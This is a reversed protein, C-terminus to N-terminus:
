RIYVIRKRYDLTVVRLHLWEKGLLGDVKLGTARVPGLDTFGFPLDIWNSTSVRTHDILRRAVTSSEAGLGRVIMEPLLEADHGVQALYSDDLLNVGSGTDLGLRARTGEISARLVPLHGSFRFRLEAGDAASPRATTWFTIVERPYDITVPLERLQEYGIIGALPRELTVELHSLDLVYADLDRQTLPGWTLQTVTQHGIAVERDLARAATADAGAVGNLILGPAGSDLIYTGVVGDVTASVLAFAGAAEFPAVRPTADIAVSRATPTNNLRALLAIDVQAAALATGFLALLLTSIRLM